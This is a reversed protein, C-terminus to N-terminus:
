QVFEFYTGSTHDSFRIKEVEVGTYLIELKEGAHLSELLISEDKITTLEMERSPYLIDVSWLDYNGTQRFITVLYTHGNGPVSEIKVNAPLDVTNRDGSFGNAYKLQASSTFFIYSIDPVDLVLKEDRDNMGIQDLISILMNVESSEVKGDAEAMGRLMAEFETKKDPTMRRLIDFCETNKLYRSEAIFEANIELKEATDSLYAREKPDDVEDALIMEDLAKVIALKELLSYNM